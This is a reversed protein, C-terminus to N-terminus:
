KIEPISKFGDAGKENWNEVTYIKEAGETIHAAVVEGAFITHDGTDLSGKKECEFCAVSDEILPVEIVSAEVPNLDTKEFKEVNAGSHNGCYFVDEKQDKSPYALVFEESNELLNHTYRQFGISTAMMRPNGSTFMCWGAPMTNPIGDEDTTVVMVVWEPYKKNIAQEVNVKKM